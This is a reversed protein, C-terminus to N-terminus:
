LIKFKPDAVGFLWQKYNAATSYKDKFERFLEEKDLIQRSKQTKTNILYVEYGKDFADDLFIKWIGRGFVSQVSDTVVAHYNPLLHKWFIERTFGTFVRIEDTRWVLLQTAAKYPFGKYPPRIYYASFTIVENNLVVYYAKWSHNIGKIRIIPTTIEWLEYDLDSDVFESKSTLHNKQIVEKIMAIYEESVSDILQM